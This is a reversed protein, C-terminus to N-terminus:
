YAAYSKVEIVDSGFMRNLKLKLNSREDNTFYVSRALEVFKESFDKKRECDRIDDEIDWLTKNVKALADITEKFPGQRDVGAQKLIAELLELEHRVLSLKGSDEIHQNKIDLITIKDILEGFSVPALISQAAPKTDTM